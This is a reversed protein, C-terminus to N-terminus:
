GAIWVRWLNEAERGVGNAQMQACRPRQSGPEDLLVTEEATQLQPWPPVRLMLVEQLTWVHDTRGAAM